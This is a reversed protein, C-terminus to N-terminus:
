NIAATPPYLVQSLQHTQTLRKICQGLLDACREDNLTHIAEERVYRLVRLLASAEIFERPRLGDGLHARPVGYCERLRAICQEMLSICVKDPCHVRASAQAMLLLNAVGIIDERESSVAAPSGVDANPRSSEDM